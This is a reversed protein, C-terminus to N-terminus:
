ILIYLLGDSFYDNLKDALPNTIKLSLTNKSCSDGVLLVMVSSIVRRFEEDLSIGLMKIKFVSNM